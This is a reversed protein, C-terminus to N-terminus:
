ENPAGKESYQKLLELVCFEAWSHVEEESPNEMREICNTAADDYWEDLKEQTIMGKYKEPLKM